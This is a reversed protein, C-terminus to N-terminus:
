PKVLHKNTEYFDKLVAYIAEGTEKDRAMFIFRGTADHYRWDYKGMTHPGTATWPLNTPTMVEGEPVLKEDVTLYAVGTHSARRCLDLIIPEYDALQGPLRADATTFRVMHAQRGQWAPFSVSGLDRYESTLM